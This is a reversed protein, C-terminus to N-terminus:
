MEFCMKSDVNELIHRCYKLKDKLWKCNLTKWWNMMDNNNQLFNIIDDDDNNKKFTNEYSLCYKETVDCRNALTFM